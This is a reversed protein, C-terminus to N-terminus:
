FLGYPRMGPWFPVVLLGGIHQLHLPVSAGVGSRCLCCVGSCVNGRQQVGGPEVVLV